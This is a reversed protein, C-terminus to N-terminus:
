LGFPPIPSDSLTRTADREIIDIIAENFVTSSVADEFDMGDALLADFKSSSAPSFSRRIYSAIVQTVTESTFTETDLEIDTFESDVDTHTDSVM